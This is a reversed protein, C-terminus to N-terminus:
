ARRSELDKMKADREEQLERLAAEFRRRIIPNAQMAIAGQREGIKADLDAIAYKLEDLEGDDSEDEEDSEGSDDGDRAEADGGGAHLQNGNGADGDDDGDGGVDGGDAAANGLASEIEAAFADDFADDMDFDGSDGGGGAASVAGGAGGDGDDDVYAGALPVMDGASREGSAGIVDIAALENDLDGFGDDADGDDVEEDDDAAGGGGVGDNDNDNGTGGEDFLEEYRVDEAEADAKLLREVEREVDEIARKSIRKRFRRKRVHRLPPTLGHPWVYDDVGSTELADPSEGIILMQSIDAIKFFQRGDVNQQSEIICPLDVLRVPFSEGSFTFKGHRPDDFKLSSVQDVTRAKIAERLRTRLGADVVRFIVHEETPPDIDNKSGESAAITALINPSSAASSAAVKPRPGGGPGAGGRGGAASSSPPRRRRPPAKPRPPAQQQQQQQQSNPQEVVSAPAAVRAVVSPTARFNTSGEMDVFGLSSSSRSLNACPLGPGLIRRQAREAGDLSGDAVVADGPRCRAAANRECGVEAKPRREKLVSAVMRLADAAAAAWITKSSLDADFGPPPPKLFFSIWMMKCCSRGPM